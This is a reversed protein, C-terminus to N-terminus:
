DDNATATFPPCLEADFLSIAYCLRKEPCRSDLVCVSGDKECRDNADCEAAYECNMQQTCVNEGSTLTACKCYPSTSCNGNNVSM